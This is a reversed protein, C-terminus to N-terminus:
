DNFQLYKQYSSEWIFFDYKEDLAFNRWKEIFVDSPMGYQNEFDALEKELMKIWLGKANTLRAFVEEKPLRHAELYAAAEELPLKAFDKTDGTKKEKLAKQLSETIDNFNISCGTIKKYAEQFKEYSIASM